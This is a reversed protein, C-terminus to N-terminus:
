NSQLPRQGLTAETIFSQRQRLGEIIFVDGPKGAAIMNLIDSTSIIEKRNIHTIIDGSKLGALDGPGGKDIDTLLIGHISNIDISRLVKSTLEQGEVGLWGRVM